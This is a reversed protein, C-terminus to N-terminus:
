KTLLVKEVILILSGTFWFHDKTTKTELSYTCRKIINHTDDYRIIFYRLIGIFVRRVMYRLMSFDNLRSKSNFKILFILLWCFESLTNM